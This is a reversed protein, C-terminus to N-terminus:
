CSESFPEEPGPWEEPLGLLAHPPRGGSLLRSPGMPLVFDHTPWVDLDPLPLRSTPNLWLHAQVRPVTWPRFGTILAVGGLEPGRDTFFVGQTQEFRSRVIEHDQAFEMPWGIVAALEDRGAFPNDLHVAILLPQFRGEYHNLKTLLKNRLPKDDRVIHAEGHSLGGVLPVSHNGWSAESLLVPMFTVVWGGERWTWAHSMLLGGPELDGAVALLDLQELRYALYDRLGILAPLQPGDEEVDVDLTFKDSRLENIADLLVARRREAQENPDSVGTVVTAEVFFSSSGISIEFDPTRDKAEKLVEVQLGAGKLLEYLYLEWFAAAFQRFDASRLRKEIHDRRNEPFHSFWKEILDRVKAWYPQDIRELFGFETEGYDKPGRRSPKDGFLPASDTISAVRRRRARPSVPKDHPRESSGRREDPDHAHVGDAPNRRQRGCKNTVSGPAARRM